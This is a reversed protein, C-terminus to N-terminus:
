LRRRRGASGRHLRLGAMLGMGALLGASPEPVPIPSQRLTFSTIGDPVDVHFRFHPWSYGPSPMIGGTAVIEDESIVTATSFFTTFDVLSNYDPADFDLGDGATSKVFDAGHGFGLEIRYFSWAIGTSNSVGEVVLYETVGGTDIVDFVLDVPGIGVYNKQPFTISNPSIALGDDDNNPAVPPLILEGAVSAVGSYWTLGTIEGARAHSVSMAFLTVAPLSVVLRVLTVHPRGSTHM